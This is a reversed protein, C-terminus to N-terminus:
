SHAPRRRLRRRGASVRVLPRLEQVHRRARGAGARLVRSEDVDRAPHASLWDSVSPVIGGCDEKIHQEAIYRVPVDKRDSNRISLGFVREAEFVGQSHHRLARHRFDCFTEKTADLWDHILQYDEVKGGFRRVSSQAHFLPHTMARRAGDDRLRHFPRQAYPSAYRRRSELRVRRVCRRQEGLRSSAGADPRLFIDM